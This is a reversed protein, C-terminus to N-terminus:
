GESGPEAVVGQLGRVPVIGLVTAEAGVGRSQKEPWQQTPSEGWQVGSFPGKVVVGLYRRM